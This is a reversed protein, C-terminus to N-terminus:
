QCLAWHWNGNEAHKKCRLFDIDFPTWVCCFKKLIKKPWFIGVPGLFCRPPNESPLVVWWPASPPGPAGLHTTGVETAERVGEKCLLKGFIGFGM